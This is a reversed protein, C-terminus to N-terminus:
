KASNAWFMSQMLPKKDYAYSPFEIDSLALFLNCLFVKFLLRKLTLELPLRM